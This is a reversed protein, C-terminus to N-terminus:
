SCLQKAGDTAGGANCHLVQVVQGRWGKPCPWPKNGVAYLIIVKEMNWFAHTLELFIAAETM